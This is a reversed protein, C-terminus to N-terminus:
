ERRSKTNRNLKGMELWTGIVVMTLLTGCIYVQPNGDGFEPDMAKSGPYFLASLQTIWYLSALWAGTALSDREFTQQVAPVSALLSQPKPRYLFYLTTLGLVMGMSMTQGNHFKAHPTWRPNFVHTENWDALYGGISTTLAVLTLLIRGAM